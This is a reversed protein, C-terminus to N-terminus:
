EAAFIKNQLYRTRLESVRYSFEMMEKLHPLAKAVQEETLQDLDEGWEKGVSELRAIEPELVTKYFEPDGVKDDDWTVYDRVLNATARFKYWAKQLLRRQIALQQEKTPPQFDIMGFAGTEHVRGGWTVGGAKAFPMWRVITFRWAGGTLPLHDYVLYWPIFIFTGIKEELPLSEVKAGEKLSRYEPSPSGWDFFQSENMATRIYMQYYPVDTVGPAFFVELSELRAPSRPDELQNLLRKLEPEKSEIYIYWGKDDYAQWFATERPTSGAAVEGAARELLADNSLDVATEKPYPYFRSEKGVGNKVWATQSWASVGFPLGERYECQYRKENAFVAQSFAVVGVICSAFVKGYNM